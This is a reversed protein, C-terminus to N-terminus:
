EAKGLRENMNTEYETGARLYDLSLDDCLQLIVERIAPGLHEPSSAYGVVGDRWVDTRVWRTTLFPLSKTPVAMWLSMELGWVDLVYKGKTTRVTMASVDVELKPVVRPADPPAPSIKNRRLALEVADRVIRETLGSETTLSDFPTVLIAIQNLRPFDLALWMPRWNDEADAGPAAGAVGLLALAPVFRLICSM